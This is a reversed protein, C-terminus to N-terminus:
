KLIFNYTGGFAKLDVEKIEEVRLINNEDKYISFM